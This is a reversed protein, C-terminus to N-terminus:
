TCLFTKMLDDESQFVPQPVFSDKAKCVEASSTHLNGYILKNSLSGMNNTIWQDVLHVNVNFVNGSLCSLTPCINLGNEWLGHVSNNESVSKYHYNDDKFILDLCTYFYYYWFKKLLGFM